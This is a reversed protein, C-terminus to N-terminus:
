LVSLMTFSSRCITEYQGNNGCHTIFLKTKKHGLCDNQPLWTFIHINKPMNINQIQKESQKPLKWIIKYNHLKGFVNVFKLMIDLPLYGAQAGFTMIIVGKEATEFM